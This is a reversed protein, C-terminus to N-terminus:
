RKIGESALTLGPILPRRTDGPAPASGARPRAASEIIDAVIHGAPTTLGCPRLFWRAFGRRGEAMEDLGDLMRRVHSAVESANSCITLFGGKLLHRFHGTRGQAPWYVDSVITLCPRGAVVADLLAATNLGFVGAANVLQDFYDERPDIVVRPHRYADFATPNTPHPRVALMPGEDGFEQQLADAISTVLQTENEWVSRSSCLFVLYPRGADTATRGKSTRMSFMADLHPAGAIRVTEAPVDHIEVAEIAMPENWVLCLDPIVHLTGKSTLDDWGHIVGLTPIGLTRAAHLYDAEVPEESWVAPSVVLVDPDITRLLRVLTESAPSAAEIWRWVRLAARTGLAFRWIPRQIKGRLDRPLNSELAHVLREPSPHGRRFYISRNIVQRGARLRLQWPEEPEPRHGSAIGAIEGVDSRTGHLFVVEHGRRRLERMVSDLDRVFDAQPAITLVNM